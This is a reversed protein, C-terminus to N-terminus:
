AEVVHDLDPNVIFTIKLGAAAGGVIKFEDSLGTKRLRMLISLDAETDDLTVEAARGDEDYYVSYTKGLHGFDTEPELGIKLFATLILKTIKKEREMQADHASITEDDVDDQSMIEEAENLGALHRLRTLHNV